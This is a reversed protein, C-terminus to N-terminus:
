PEPIVLSRMPVPMFILVFMVMCAVGVITRPWSLKPGPDVPPHDKGSFRRMLLLLVFWVFWNAGTTLEEVLASGRLGSLYGTVGFYGCVGLGLLPLVGLIAKSLRNQIPGLLAYTVHGGDLQGVPILNLMTIFLGVWGALASPHLFIDHGPPIPGHLAWLLLEYLLSHGELIFEGPTQLRVESLTLGYILVPLAVAMGALPGAAGIDLLADRKRIRGRMAIIAGLTGFVLPFPIFYPLSADVKHIRAAIYHGFEHCLLIALLPVAFVWGAYWPPLPGGTPGGVWFYGAIFSSVLTALFLVVNIWPRRPRAPAPAQTSDITPSEAM